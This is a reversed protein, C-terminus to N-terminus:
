GDLQNINLCVPGHLCQDIAVTVSQGRGDVEGQSLLGAFAQANVPCACTLFRYKPEEAKWLQM